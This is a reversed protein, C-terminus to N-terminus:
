PDAIEDSFHLKLLLHSLDRRSNFIAVIYFFLLLDFESEKDSFSLLSSYLKHIKLIRHSICALLLVQSHQEVAMEFALPYM